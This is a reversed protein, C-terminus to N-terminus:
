MVNFYKLLETVDALYEDFSGNNIITYDTVMQPVELESPDYMLHWDFKPNDKLARELRISDDAEIKITIFGNAKCWELENMYRCDTIVFKSDRYSSLPDYQRHERIQREMAKIWVYPDHKRFGEGIFQLLERPKVDEPLDPFYEKVIARIPDAFAVRTFGCNNVLLKGLTDKGSRLQGCLCIRNVEM